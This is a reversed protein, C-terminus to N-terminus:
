PRCRAVPVINQIYTRGRKDHRREEVVFALASEEAPSRRRAYLKRTLRERM